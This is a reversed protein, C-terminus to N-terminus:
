IVYRKYAIIIFLKSIILNNIFIDSISILSFSIIDWKIFLIKLIYIWKMKCFINWNIFNLIFLNFLIGYNNNIWIFISSEAKDKAIEFLSIPTTWIKNALSVISTLM